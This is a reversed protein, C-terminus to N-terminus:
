RDIFSGIVNCCCHNTKTKENTQKEKEKLHIERSLDVFLLSLANNEDEPIKKSYFSFNICFCVLNRDYGIRTKTTCGVKESFNDDIQRHIDEGIDTMQLTNQFMM